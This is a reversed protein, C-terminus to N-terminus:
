KKSDNKHKGIQEGIKKWANHVKKNLAVQSM